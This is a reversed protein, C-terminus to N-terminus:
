KEYTRVYIYTHLNKPFPAAM